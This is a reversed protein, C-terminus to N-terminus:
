LREEVAIMAEVITSFPKIYRGQYIWNRKIRAIYHLSNRGPEAPVTRITALEGYRISVGDVISWGPRLESERREREMQALRAREEQILLIMAQRESAPMDSFNHPLVM